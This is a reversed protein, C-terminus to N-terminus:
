STEPWGMRAVQIWGQDPVSDQCTIPWGDSWGCRASGGQHFNSTVFYSRAGILARSGVVRITRPGLRVVRANAIPERTANSIVTAVLEGDVSSVTINRDAGRTDTRHLELVLERDPSELLGDRYSGFTQLRYSVVVGRPTVQEVRHRVSRVDLRGHTDDLDTTITTVSVGVATRPAATAQQHSAPSVGGGATATAALAITSTAALTAIAARRSTPTRNM